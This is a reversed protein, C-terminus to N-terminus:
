QMLEIISFLIILQEYFKNIDLVWKLELKKFIISKYVSGVNEFSLKKRDVGRASYM